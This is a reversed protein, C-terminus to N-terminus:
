AAQVPALTGRVRQGIKEVAAQLRTRWGENRAAPQVTIQVAGLIASVAVEADSEVTFRERRRLVIDRADGDITLWATGCVVALRAGRARRLVLIAGPELAVRGNAMEISM